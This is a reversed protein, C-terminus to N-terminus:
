NRPSAKRLLRMAWYFSSGSGRVVALVAADSM